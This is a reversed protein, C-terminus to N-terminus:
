FVPPLSIISDIPLSGSGSTVPFFGGGILMEPTYNIVEAVNNCHGNFGPNGTIVNYGCHSNNDTKDENTSASAIDGVVRYLNVQKAVLAGNIVLNNTNCSNAPYTYDMPDTSQDHCTWIDGNDASVAAATNATPQAVYFGDLQGVGPAIYISGKVILAFKAVNTDTEGASSYTINNGIYVNGNVYVNIKRGAPISVDGSTLCYLGTNCTPGSLTYDGDAGISNLDSVVTPSTPKNSYYDPICSSTQRLGNEYIGGWSSAGTNAFSLLDINTNGYGSPSAGASYFGHITNDGDINGLAFAGYESSAGGNGHNSNQKSYAYIGGIGPDGDSYDQYTVNSTTDCPTKGSDFWAGTSIDSGYTKFYAQSAFVTGSSAAIIVLSSAIAAAKKLHEARM